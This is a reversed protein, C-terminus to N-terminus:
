LVITNQVKIARVGHEIIFYDRERKEDKNLIKMGKDWLSSLDNSSAIKKNRTGSVLKSYLTYKM